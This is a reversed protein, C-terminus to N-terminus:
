KGTSAMLVFVATRLLTEDTGGPTSSHGSQGSAENLVSGLFVLDGTKEDNVRGSVFRKGVQSGTPTRQTVDGYQDDVDHHPATARTRLDTQKCAGTAHSPVGSM